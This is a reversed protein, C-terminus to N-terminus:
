RDQDFDREDRVHRTLRLVHAPRTQPNLEVYNRTGQWLYHDTSLLDHVECPSEPRLGLADLDLETWGTQVHHPDLNVLVMIVNDGSPDSKSYALLQPNDTGHFVLGQNSQLAPNDRRIRNLQGMLREIRGAGSFDWTKIEYKESDLYEERGAQLPANVCLEYAPGYVGYSAGLTAALILRIMFAPPGGHQLYGTLIDPTNPWLTPRFYEKVETTTLETLYETLEVKTNRWPFYNYSQTFGLKALRYMLKPRTFAESLFILEPHNKKLSGILWEWFAFPKTHPNDVRFIRVGQDVWHQFVERQAEWLVRWGTGEFDLPYIDQYKKPPNEAYQISGDARKRFWEPHEKVWPHDPSCQLAIDLAVEIGYAERAEEVLARFDELSGLDPHIATHGGAAGGIGWPSGPEGPQAKPNNNRGKRFAEGIPHIPPLYLVDFGLRQLRPLHTQVDRFTGHRGKRPSCSRPFMEYWASFRARLPDVTVALEREYLTQLARDPVADMRAMLTLDLAAEARERQPEQGRLREACRALKKADDGEARLSAAEVLHAGTLLEVSVDLGAEVKKKLDHCWTHFADVWAAVTYVHEGLSTVEFSARWRDNTAHSMPIEEWQAAGPARHRLMALVVDHGDTFIDAEVTVSEGVVRKIPFRGAEIEPRVATIVARRRGSDDRPESSTPPCSKPSRTTPTPTRKPTRPSTRKM